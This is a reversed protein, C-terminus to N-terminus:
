EPLEVIHIATKLLFKFDPMGCVNLLRILFAIKLNSKNRNLSVPIVIFEFYM